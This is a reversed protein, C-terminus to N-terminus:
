REGTESGGNRRLSLDAVAFQYQIGRGIVRYRDYGRASLPNPLVMLSRAGSDNVRGVFLIRYRDNGANDGAVRLEKESMEFSFEDTTTAKVEFLLPRKQMVEFDYGLSDDGDDDSFAFRRNRSRWAEAGVAYQRKLWEFAVLEGMFGILDTQDSTLRRIEGRSGGGGGARRATRRPRITALARPRSTASLLTETIGARISDILDHATEVDLTVPRGDLAVTRRAQAREWREREETTTQAALENPTIGLEAADVTDPLPTPWLELRRAWVIIAADDLTRFDLLGADRFSGILRGTDGGVIWTPPVVGSQKRTWVPLTVAATRVFSALARANALRLEEVPLGASEAVDRPAVLDVWTSVVKRMVPDSPVDIADLWAPDPGLVPTEDHGQRERRLQARLLERAAAAYATPVEGADYLPISRDRLDRQLEALHRAIHAAFAFSQGETNHIPDYDPALARLSANLAAYDIKLLDRLHGLTEATTAAEVLLAATKGDPFLKEWPELLDALEGANSPPSGGALADGISDQGDLYLRVIPRLLYLLGVIVGRQARRVEVIREVSQEFAASYDQDSPASVLGGGRRRGVVMIANELANAAGVLEGIKPALLELTGWDLPEATGEFAIRPRVPDSLAFVRRIHSPLEIPQAGMTIDARSGPHLRIARLTELSTRVRQVSQRNFASAKFELTLAVLDTLWERSRDVLPVGDAEDVPAGDVLVRVDTAAVTRLREGLLPKLITALVVGDRPDAQLVPADLADLVAPTLRDEDVLVHLVEEGHGMAFAGLRGHRSVILVDEQRFPLPGDPSHIRSITAWTRECAKRFNAVLTDPVELEAFVRALERLRAFADRPENWVHIGLEAARGSAQPSAELAARVESVLLPMFTPQADAEDDRYHWARPPAIFDEIGAEGPRTVPMWPAERLFALAPSPLVVPDTANGGRPRAIRVRLAEDPWNALGAVILRGYTERASSPLSNYEASGTIRM